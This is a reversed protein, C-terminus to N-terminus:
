MIEMDRMWRYKDEISKALEEDTPQWMPKYSIGDPITDLEMEMDELDQEFVEKGLFEVQEKVAEFTQGKKNTWRLYEVGFQYFTTDM